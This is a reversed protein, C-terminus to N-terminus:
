WKGVFYKIKMAYNTNVLICWQLFHPTNLVESIDSIETMDSIHQGTSFWTGKLVVSLDSIDSKKYQFAQIEQRVQRVNQSQFTQSTTCNDSIIDSKNDSIDSKNDSIDSSPVRCKLLKTLLTNPYIDGNSVIEVLQTCAAKARKAEKRDRGWSFPGHAAVFPLDIFLPTSHSYRLSLSLSIYM